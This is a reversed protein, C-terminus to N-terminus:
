SCFSCPGYVRTGQAMGSQSIYSIVGNNCQDCNEPTRSLGCAKLFKARDFRENSSVLKDAICEAVHTVTSLTGPDCTFGADRIADAILKFDKKTM